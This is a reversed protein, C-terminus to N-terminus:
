PIASEDRKPETSREELAGWYEHCEAVALNLLRIVEKIREAETRADIKTGM